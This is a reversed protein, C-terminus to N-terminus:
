VNTRPWVSTMSVWLALTGVLTPTGELTPGKRESRAMSMRLFDQKIRDHEGEKERGDAIDGGEVM